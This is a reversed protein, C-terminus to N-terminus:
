YFTSLLKNKSEFFGAHKESPFSALTQEYIIRVLKFALIDDEQDPVLKTRKEPPSDGDDDEGSKPEDKL